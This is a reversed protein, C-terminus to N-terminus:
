AAVSSTTAGELRGARWDLGGALRLFYGCGAMARPRSHIGDRARQQHAPQVTRKWGGGVGMGWYGARGLDHTSVWGVKAM